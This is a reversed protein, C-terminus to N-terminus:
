KSFKERFLLGEPYTFIFMAYEMLSMTNKYTQLLKLAHSTIITKFYDINERIYDQRQEDSRAATLVDNTIDVPNLELMEGEKKFYTKCTM